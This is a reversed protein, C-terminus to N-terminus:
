SVKENASAMGSGEAHSSLIAISEIHRESSLGGEVEKLISKVYAVVMVHHNEGERALLGGIPAKGMQSLGGEKRAITASGSNGLSTLVLGMAPGVDQWGGGDSGAPWEESDSNICRSKAQTAFFSPFMTMQIPLGWPLQSPAGFSLDSM